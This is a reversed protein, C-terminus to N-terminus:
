SWRSRRSRRGWRSWCKGGRLYCRDIAALFAADSQQTENLGFQRAIQTTPETNWAIKDSAKMVDGVVPIDHFVKNFGGVPGGLGQEGKPVNTVNGERDFVSIYDGQDMQGVIGPNNPDFYNDYYTGDDFFTRRVNGEESLETGIVKAKIGWKGESIPGPVAQTMGEIPTKFTPAQYGSSFATEDYSGHQGGVGSRFAFWGHNRVNQDSRGRLKLKGAHHVKRTGSDVRLVEPMNAKLLAAQMATTYGKTSADTAADSYVKGLIKQGETSNLIGRNSLNRISAPVNTRLANQLGQQYSALAEQTYKDINPEMNTVASKLRPMLAQLLSDRYDTPLGAYSSGSSQSYSKLDTPFDVNYPGEGGGGDVEVPIQLSQGHIGKM